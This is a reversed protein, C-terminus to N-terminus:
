SVKEAQAALIETRPAEEDVSVKTRPPPTISKEREEIRSKKSARTFFTTLALVALGVGAGFLWASIALDAASSSSGSQGGVTFTSTWDHRAWYLGAIIGAATALLIGIIPFGSNEETELVTLRRTAERVVKRDEAVVREVDGVRAHARATESELVPFGAELGSIRVEHDAVGEEIENLKREIFDQNFGRESLAKLSALERELKAARANALTGGKM